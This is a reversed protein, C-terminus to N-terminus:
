RRGRWRSPEASAALVPAASNGGRLAALATGADIAATARRECRRRRRSSAFGLATLRAAVAEADPGRWEAPTTIAAVVGHGNRSRPGCPRPMACCPRVSRMPMTWCPSELAPAIMGAAVSSANPGGPDIVRVDHGRRTLEAAACLGLVGAGVVVIDCSIDAM